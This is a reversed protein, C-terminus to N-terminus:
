RSSLIRQGIKGQQRSTRDPFANPRAGPVETGARNEMEIVPVGALEGDDDAEPAPASAPADSADGPPQFGSADEATNDVGPDPPAAPAPQALVISVLASPLVQM